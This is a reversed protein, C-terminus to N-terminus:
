HPRASVAHRKIIESAKEGGVVVINDGTVLSAEDSCLFLICASIQEPEALRGLANASELTRKLGPELVCLGALEPTIVGGPSVANIRIGDSAVEAAASKSLSIVSAAAAGFASLGPSSELGARSAVNVIAGGGSMKIAPIQYKMGLWISKMASDIVRDWNHEEIEHLHCYEAHGAINNVAYHLAGYKEIVANVMADAKDAHSGEFTAATAEGGASRILHVTEQAPELESDTLFVKAGAEAFHIAAAKGVSTAASRILVVKHNFRALYTGALLARVRLVFAHWVLFWIM